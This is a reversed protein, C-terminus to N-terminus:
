QGEDKMPRRGHRRKQRRQRERVELHLDRSSADPDEKNELDKEELIIDDQGDNFM